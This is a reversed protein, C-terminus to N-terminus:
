GIASDVVSTVVWGEVVRVVIPHSVGAKLKDFAGNAVLLVVRDDDLGIRGGSNGEGGAPYPIEIITGPDVVKTIPVDVDVISDDPFLAALTVPAVATLM